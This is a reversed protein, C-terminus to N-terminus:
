TVRHFVASSQEERKEREREGSKRLQRRGLVDDRGSGESGVIGDSPAHSELGSNDELNAGAKVDIRTFNGEIIQDGRIKTRIGEDAEFSFVRNIGLSGQLGEGE